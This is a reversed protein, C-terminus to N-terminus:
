FQGDLKDTIMKDLGLNLSTTAEWGLKRLNKTDAYSSLIQGGINNSFKLEGSINPKYHKVMSALKEVVSQLNIVCGKGVEITEGM